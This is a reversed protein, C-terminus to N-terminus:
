SVPSSMRGIPPAAEGFPECTNMEVPRPLFTTTISVAVLLGTAKMSTPSRGQPMAADLSPLSTNVALPGDFSTDITSRAVRVTLPWPAPPCGATPRPTRERLVGAGEVMFGDTLSYGSYKPLYTDSTGSSSM